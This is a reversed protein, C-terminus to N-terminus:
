DLGLAIAALGMYEHICSETGHLGSSSPILQRWEFPGPGRTAAAPIAHGGAREMLRMSRRLHDASTVLLFPESHLVATIDRAESATDLAKDLVIISEADVGLAEAMKAYGHASPQLNRSALVGGSVVLRAGPLKRVLRVGEVIRALADQNFSATIPLDGRPGYWAGLVVVYNVPPPNDLPSAYAAALPRLLLNAVM